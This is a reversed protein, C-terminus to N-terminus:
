NPVTKPVTADESRLGAAPQMSSTETSFMVGTQGSRKPAPIGDGWGLGDAEHILYDLRKKVIESKSKARQDLTTKLKQVRAELERLDNVRQQQRLDFIKDLGKAIEERQKARSEQDDTQAYIGLARSVWSELHEEEPVNIAGEMMIGQLDVGMAPTGSTASPSDDSTRLRLSETQYRLSEASEKRANAIEEQQAITTTLMGCSLTILLSSVITIKRILM